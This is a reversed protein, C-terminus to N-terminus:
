GALYVWSVGYAATVIWPPVVPRFAEGIDSTQLIPGMLQPLSIDSRFYVYAVYRSGARIATRLRAGYAAYRVDSDISDADSDALKEV